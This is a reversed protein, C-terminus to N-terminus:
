LKIDSFLLSHSSFVLQMIYIGTCVHTHMNYYLVFMRVRWNRRHRFTHKQISEDDGGSM